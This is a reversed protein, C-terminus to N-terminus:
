KKDKIESWNHVRTDQLKIHNKKMLVSYASKPRNNLTIYLYIGYFLFFVLAILFIGKLNFKTSSIKM